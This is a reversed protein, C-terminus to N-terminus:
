KKMIKKFKELFAVVKEAYNKEFTKGYYAIGNRFYRLQDCFQIDNESFKLKRMFSVEAEHAGQGGANYGQEIMAARLNEMIIDYAIKIITNPNKETIGVTDLIEKLSEEAQLAENRLSAARSKDPSQKKVIGEEMFEDFNRIPRM